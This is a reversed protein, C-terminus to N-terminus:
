QSSGVWALPSPNAYWFDGNVEILINTNDIKIDYTRNNLPFQPTFSINLNTLINRVRVELKSVFNKHLRIM